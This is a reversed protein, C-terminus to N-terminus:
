GSEEEDGAEVSGIVSGDFAHDVIGDFDFVFAEGTASDDVEGEFVVGIFLALFPEALAGREIAFVPDGEVDVARGIKDGSVPGQRVGGEVETPILVADAADEFVRGEAEGGAGDDTVEVRETGGMEAAAGFVPRAREEKPTGGGGEAVDPFGVEGDGAVEIEEVLAEEGAGGECFGSPEGRGTEGPHM